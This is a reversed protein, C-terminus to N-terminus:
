FPMPKARAPSMQRARPASCTVCRRSHIAVLLNSLDPRNREDLLAEAIASHEEQTIAVHEYALTLLLSAEALYSEGVFYEVRISELVDDELRDVFRRCLDTVRAYELVNM